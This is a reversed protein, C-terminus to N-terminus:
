AEDPGPMQPEALSALRDLFGTQAAVMVRRAEDLAFWEVRDLEPFLATRGSRPPWEMEFTGPVITTPDLDAQVAWAEVTKGGSQTVTGLPLREGGPVAVGLEEEFERLAAQLPEEPGELGGKPISWAREHKRAWFPGGMHGLLVELGPTRRFLIVGASRKSLM